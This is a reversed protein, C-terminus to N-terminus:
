APRSAVVILSLGFGFDVRHEVHRYWASLARAALGPLRSRPAGRLGALDHRLGLVRFALWYPGAALANWHRVREIELGLGRVHRVFPERDYRRHFGMAEDRSGYLAAYAPVCLLLRGGPALLAAAHELAGEDDEIMELVDVMLVNDFRRATEFREISDQVIETEGFRDKALAVLAPDPEVGLVSHGAERAMHVSLGYGCGVDLLTHGRALGIMLRALNVNRLDREPVAMAQYARTQRSVVTM